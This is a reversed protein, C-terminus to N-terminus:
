ESKWRRKRIKKKRVVSLTEEFVESQLKTLGLYQHALRALKQKGTGIHMSHLENRSIICCLTDRLVIVYM